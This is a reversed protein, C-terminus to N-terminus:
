IKGSDFWEAMDIVMFPNECYKESCLFLILLCCLLTIFERRDRLMVPFPFTSNATCNISFKLPKLISIRIFISQSRLLERESGMSSCIECGWDIWQYSSTEATKSSDSAINWIAEFPFERLSSLTTATWHWFMKIESDIWHFWHMITVYCWQCRWRKERRRGIM